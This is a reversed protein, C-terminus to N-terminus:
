VHVLLIFIGISARLLRGLQLLVYESFPRDVDSRFFLFSGLGDIFLWVGILILINSLSIVCM